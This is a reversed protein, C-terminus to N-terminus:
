GNLDLREAHSYVNYTDRRVFAAVTVGLREAAEVALSSPASVAAIIPIGAMAAKQVIEFSVRGSVTLIRETLPVARNFLARGVVKDVANHRGVDERLCLLQGDFDFLAAAHLGGTKDFVRQAQRLRGPLTPIVSARAVGGFALAACQVEIQDLTAKGCVGCSATMGFNRQFDGPEYRCTLSVTVVNFRQEEGEVLECYKVAAVQDPGVLGETLLYGAALEFDNGPTRMTVAVPQAVQGPGAARIEM